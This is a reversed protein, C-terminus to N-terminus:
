VPEPPTLLVYAKGLHNEIIKAARTNSFTHMTAHYVTLVLEQLTQNAELDTINLSPAFGRLETRMVARSHTLHVGHNTLYRALRLSRTFKRRPGIGSLMYRALWDEVISVSLASANDCEVLLGPGYQQLMEAWVPYENPNALIAAKAQEFQGTIAQAPVMRLGSATQLIFQPDIPGLQSHSVMMIEYAVFSVITAASMAMHPVIIRIDDFKQRLYEGISEAAEAQGGPSHLILDLSPGKLGHVAEMFGTMDSNDITTQSPFQPKQLHAVSYCITDRKTHDQLAAVARQRILDYAAPNPTTLEQLETLLEGWTPM